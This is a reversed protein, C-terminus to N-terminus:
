IFINTTIFISCYISICKNWCLSNIIPIISYVLSNYAILFKPIFDISVESLIKNKNNKVKKMNVIKIVIKLHNM